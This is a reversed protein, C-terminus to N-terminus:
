HCIGLVAEEHCTKGRNKITKGAIRLQKERSKNFSDRSKKNLIAPKKAVALMFDGFLLYIKGLAIDNFVDYCLRNKKM